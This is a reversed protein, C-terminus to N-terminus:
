WIKRKSAILHVYEHDYLFCFNVNVMTTKQASEGVNKKEMKSYM